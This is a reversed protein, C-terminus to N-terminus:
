QEHHSQSSVLVWMEATTQEVGCMAKSKIVELGASFWPSYPSADVLM